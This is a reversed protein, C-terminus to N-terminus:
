TYWCYRSLHFYSYRETFMARLGYGLSFCSVASGFTLQSYSTDSKFASAMVPGCV